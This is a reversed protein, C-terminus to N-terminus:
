SVFEIQDISNLHSDVAAGYPKMKANGPVKQFVVLSLSRHFLDHPSFVLKPFVVNERSLPLNTKALSPPPRTKKVGNIFTTSGPQFTVQSPHAILKRDRQLHSPVATAEEKFGKYSLIFHSSPPSPLAFVDMSRPVHVRLSRLVWM